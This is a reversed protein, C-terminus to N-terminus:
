SPLRRVEFVEGDLFFVLLAPTEGAAAKVAGTVVRAALTTAIDRPLAKAVYIRRTGGRGTTESYKWGERRARRLISTRHVGLAEAIGSMTYRAASM